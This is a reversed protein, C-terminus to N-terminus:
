GVILALHPLGLPLPPASEHDDGKEGFAADLGYEEPAAVLSNDNMREDGECAGQYAFCCGVIPSWLSWEIPVAAAANPQVGAAPRVCDSDEPADDSIVSDDAGAACTM